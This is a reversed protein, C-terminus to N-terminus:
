GGRAFRMERRGDLRVLIKLDGYCRVQAGRTRAQATETRRGWADGEVQTPRRGFVKVVGTMQIDRGAEVFRGDCPNENASIM